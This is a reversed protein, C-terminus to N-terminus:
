KHHEEMFKLLNSLTNQMQQEINKEKHIQLGMEKISSMASDLKGTVEKKFDKFDEKLEKVENSTIDELRQIREGPSISRWFLFSTLGTTFLVLINLLSQAEM